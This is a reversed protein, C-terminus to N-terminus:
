QSLNKRVLKLEFESTEEKPVSIDVGGFSTKLKSIAQAM